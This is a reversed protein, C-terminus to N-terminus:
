DGGAKVESVFNAAAAGRLTTALRGHRMIVVDGRTHAQFTFGVESEDTADIM